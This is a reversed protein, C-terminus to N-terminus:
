KRILKELRYKIKFINRDIFDLKLNHLDSYVKCPQIVVKQKPADADLAELNEAMINFMNYKELSLERSSRLAEISREYTENAIAEEIVAIAEDPKQIDIRRMAEEPYYDTVNTCGYYFPYAGAIFSDTLKETFYYPTQSNEIAIHYKYPALVEWKDKFDRIGRGFVDLRDGFHSKLIEVFRLRDQHGQTFVKNSSIVSLLKTKEPMEMKKFDDYDFAVNEGDKSFELGVFWLLVPPTYVVNRGTLNDQCSCVIPFQKCYSQPYALVSYPESTTLIINQPAVNVSLKDRLTKGRVVVFDVDADYENVYFQYDHKINCGPHEAALWLGSSRTTQRLLTKDGRDGKTIVLVKRVM